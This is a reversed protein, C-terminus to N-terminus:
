LNPCTNFYTGFESAIHVRVDDCTQVHTLTHVSATWDLAIQVRVDDCPVSATWESATQVRVNKSM